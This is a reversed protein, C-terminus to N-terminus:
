NWKWTSYKDYNTDALGTLSDCPDAWLRAKPSMVTLLTDFGRKSSPYGAHCRSEFVDQCLRAYIGPLCPM